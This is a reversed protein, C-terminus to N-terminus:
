FQVLVTSTGIYESTEQYLILPKGIISCKINITSLVVEVLLKRSFFFKEPRIAAILVLYQRIWKQSM